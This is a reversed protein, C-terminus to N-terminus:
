CSERVACGMTVFHLKPLDAKTIIVKTFTADRFRLKSPATLTPLQISRRSRAELTGTGRSTGDCKEVLLSGVGDIETGDPLVLTAPGSFNLSTKMDMGLYISCLDGSM